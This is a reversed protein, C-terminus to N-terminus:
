AGEYIRKARKKLENERLFYGYYGYVSACNECVYAYYGDTRSNEKELLEWAKDLLRGVESESEIEGLRLTIEDADQAALTFNVGNIVALLVTLLVFVSLLAYLIFKKRVNNM